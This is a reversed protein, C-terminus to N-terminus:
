KMEQGVIVIDAQNSNKTHYVLELAQNVGLVKLYFEFNIMKGPKLKEETQSIGACPEPTYIQYANVNFGFLGAEGICDTKTINLDNASTNKLYASVKIIDTGLGTKNLNYSLFLSSKLDAIISTRESTRERNGADEDNDPFEGEPNEEDNEGQSREIDKQAKFLAREKEGHSLVQQRETGVPTITQAHAMFAVFLMLTILYLRLHM